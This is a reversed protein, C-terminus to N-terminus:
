NRGFIQYQESYDANFKRIVNVATSIISVAIADWVGFDVKDPLVELYSAGAAIAAGSIAILAGKGIKLLDTKNLTYKKSGNEM